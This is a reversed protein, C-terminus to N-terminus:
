IFANEITYKIVNEGGEYSISMQEEVNIVSLVNGTDERCGALVSVTATLAIITKISIRKM